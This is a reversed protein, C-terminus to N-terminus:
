AQNLRIDLCVEGISTSICRSTSLEYKRGEDPKCQVPPLIDCKLNNGALMTLVNGSIINAIESVASTVFDDVADVQMGIMINVMGLSTVFPFRYTVEGNLDGTIGVSIDLEDDCLFTEVPRDTIDSLDLMLNFVQYTATVFTKYLNDTM